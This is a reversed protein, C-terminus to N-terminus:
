RDSQKGRSARKPKDLRRLVITEVDSTIASKLEAVIESLLKNPDLSQGEEDLLFQHPELHLTNALRALTGAGVWRRSREVDNMYGVSLDVRRALEMQSIGLRKRAARINKALLNQIAEADISNEM